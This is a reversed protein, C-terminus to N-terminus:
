TCLIPVPVGLAAATGCFLSSVTFLKLETRCPLTLLVPPVLGSEQRHQAAMQHPVSLAVCGQPWQGAEQRLAVPQQVAKGRAILERFLGPSAPVSPGDTVSM